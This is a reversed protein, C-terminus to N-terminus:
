SLKAEYYVHSISGVTTYVELTPGRSEDALMHFEDVIVSCLQEVHGSAVLKNLAANGKEYSCIAINEKPDSLPCGRNSSTYSQVRLKSRTCLRKLYAGRESVACIYATTTM